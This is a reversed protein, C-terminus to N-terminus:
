AHKVAAPGASAAPQTRGCLSATITDLVSQLMDEVPSVARGHERANDRDILAALMVLTQLYLREYVEDESLGLSIGLQDMVRKTPGNDANVRMAFQDAMRDYGHRTLYNLWLRAHSHQGKDDIQEAMPILLIELLARVNSLLGKDTAEQLLAQRRENVSRRRLDLLADILGKMSGFHYQVAYKNSQGATSAIEHMAVANFGREGLLKEASAILRRKTEQEPGPIDGMAVLNLSTAVLFM